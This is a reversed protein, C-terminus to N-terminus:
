RESWQSEYKSLVTVESTQLSKRRLTHVRPALHLHTSIAFVVKIVQHVEM